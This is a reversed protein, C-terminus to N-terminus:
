IMFITGPSSSAPVQSAPSHSVSCLWCLYTQSCSCDTRKRGQSVPLIWPAKCSFSPLSGNRYLVWQSTNPFFLPGPPWSHLMGSILLLWQTLPSAVEPRCSPKPNSSHNWVGAECTLSFVPELTHLLVQVDWGGGPEAHSGQSSRSPFLHLLTLPSHVRKWVALHETLFRFSVFWAIACAAKTGWVARQQQLSARKM